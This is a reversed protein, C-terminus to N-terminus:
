RRTAHIAKQSLFRILPRLAEPLESEKFVLTQEMEGAVYVLTYTFEDPLQREKNMVAQLSTLGTEKMLSHIQEVMEVNLSERFLAMTMGAVGGSREFRIFSYDAMQLRSRMGEM